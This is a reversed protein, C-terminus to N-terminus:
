QYRLIYDSCIGICETLNDNNLEPMVAISEKIPQFGPYVWLYGKSTITLTDKEHWFFNFDTNKFYLIAEINKCHIWLKSKYEILWDIQVEHTPFDHGLFIKNQNVWIDIEVNFNLNISNLIYEPNNENNIERGNLNGRHSILIM